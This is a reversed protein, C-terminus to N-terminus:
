NSRKKFLKGVQVQAALLLLDANKMYWSINYYFHIHWNKDLFSKYFESLKDSSIAADSESKSSHADIFEKKEQVDDFCDFINNRM